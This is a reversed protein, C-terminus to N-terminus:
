GESRKLGTLDELVLRISDLRDTGNVFGSVSVVDTRAASAHVLFLFGSVLLLIAASATGRGPMDVKSNAPKEVYM